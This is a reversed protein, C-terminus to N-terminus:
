WDETVAQNRRRLLVVAITTCLLILVALALLWYWPNNSLWMRLELLRNDEEGLQFQQEVQMALLPQSANQWSFFDGELQGWLSLSILDDVRQNLLEPTQAALIYLSGTEESRPNKRASIVAMEGLTSKQKTVGSLQFIDENGTDTFNYIRNHLANQM